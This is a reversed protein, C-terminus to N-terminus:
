SLNQNSHNLNSTPNNFQQRPPNKNTLLLKHIKCSIRHSIHLNNNNNDKNYNVMQIKHSQSLYMKIILRWHFGELNIDMVKHKVKRKM